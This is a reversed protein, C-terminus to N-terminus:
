RFRDLFDVTHDAEDVPARELLEAEKRLRDFGKYDPAM